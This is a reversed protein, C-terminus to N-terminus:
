TSSNQQWRMYSFYFCFNKSLSIQMRKVLTMDKKKNKAKAQFPIPISHLYTTTPLPKSIPFLFSNNSVLKPDTATSSFNKKMQNIHFCM